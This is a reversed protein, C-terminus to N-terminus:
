CFRKSTHTFVDNMMVVGRGWPCRANNTQSCHEMVVVADWSGVDAV